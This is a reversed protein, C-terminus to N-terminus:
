ELTGEARMLAAIERYLELAAKPNQNIVDDYRKDVIEGKPYKDTFWKEFFDYNLLAGNTTSLYQKTVFIEDQGFLECINELLYSFMKDFKEKGHYYTEQLVSRVVSILLTPYTLTEHETTFELPKMIRNEELKAVVRGLHDFSFSRGLFMCEDPFPKDIVANKASDTYVVGYKALEVQMIQQNLLEIGNEIDCIISALLDDGYTALRLLIKRVKVYIEFTFRTGMLNRMRDLLAIGTWIAVGTCNIQTTLPNGSSNVSTFSYVNGFYDVVCSILMTLLNQVMELEESTYNKSLRCLEGYYHKIADTIEKYLAFEFGAFDGDFSAAGGAKLFKNIQEWQISSSDVGVMTSFFFPNLAMTRCLTLLYERTLLTAEMPLVLIFRIRGDKLKEPKMPEDKIVAKILVKHTGNQAVVRLDELAKDMDDHLIDKHGERRIIYGMKGKLGNPSPKENHPYGASTQRNIAELGKLKAHQGVMALADNVNHIGEKHWGDWDIQDAVNFGNLAVDKTVRHLHTLVNDDKNVNIDQEVEHLMAKVVFMAKEALESNYEPQSWAKSMAVAVGTSVQASSLDMIVKGSGFKGGFPTPKNKLIHGLGSIKVKSKFRASSLRLRQGVLKGSGTYVFKKGNIAFVEKGIWDKVPDKMHPTPMMPPGNFIEFDTEVPKSLHLTAIDSVLAMKSPAFTHTQLPFVGLQDFDQKCWPVILKETTRAVMAGMHMGVIMQATDDDKLAVYLKGCDGVYSEIPMDIITVTNVDDKGRLYMHPKTIYGKPGYKTPHKFASTSQALASHRIMVCPLGLPLHTDESIEAIDPMWVTLDRYDRARTIYTALMDKSGFNYQTNSLVEARTMTVDLMPGLNINEVCSYITLTWDSWQKQGSCAGDPFCHHNYVLWKGKVFTGNTQIQSYNGNDNPTAACFILKVNHVLAKHWVTEGQVAQSQKTMYRTLGLSPYEYRAAKIDNFSAVPTKASSMFNGQMQYKIEEKSFYKYCGGIITAVGIAASITTFCAILQKLGNCADKMKNMAMENTNGLNSVLDRGDVLLQQAQPIHHQVVELIAETDSYITDLRRVRNDVYKYLKNAVYMGAIAVGGALAVKPIEGRLGEYNFGQKVVDAPAIERALSAVELYPKMAKKREDESSVSSVDDADDPEEEMYIPDIEFDDLESWKFGRNKLLKDVLAHQAAHHKKYCTKMYAWFQIADDFRAIKRWQTQIQCEPLNYDGVDVATNHLIPEYVHYIWYDDPEFLEPNAHLRAAYAAQAKKGDLFNGSTAYEPKVEIFVKNNFRRDMIAGFNHIEEPQLSPVNTTVLVGTPAMPCNEKQELAAKNALMPVNNVLDCFMKRMPDGGQKETLATRLSCMDDFVMLLCDPQFGNNFESGNDQVTHILREFLEPPRGELSLIMAGFYSVLSSKGTSSGGAFCTAFPVRRMGSACDLKFRTEIQQYKIRWEDVMKSSMYRKAIKFGTSAGLHKEAYARVTHYEKVWQARGASDRAAWTSDEHALKRLLEYMDEMAAVEEIYQSFSGTASGNFWGYIITTISTAIRFFGAYISDESTFRRLAYNVLSNAGEMTFTSFKGSTYATMALGGIAMAKILDYIINKSSGMNMVRNFDGMMSFVNSLGDYIGAQKVFAVKNGDKDTAESWHWFDNQKMYAALGDAFVKEDLSRFGREEASRERAKIFSVSLTGVVAALASYAAGMSADKVKILDAYRILIDNAIFPVTEANSAALHLVKSTWFHFDSKLYTVLVEQMADVAPHRIPDNMYLTEGEFEFSERDDDVRSPDYERLPPPPYRDEIAQYVFPEESITHLAEYRFAEEVITQASFYKIAKIANRADEINTNNDFRLADFELGTLGYNCVHDFYKQKQEKKNQKKDENNRKLSYHDEVVKESIINTDDGYHTPVLSINRKPASDYRIFDTPDCVKMVQSTAEKKEGINVKKKKNLFKREKDSLPLKIDSMLFMQHQDRKALIEASEVPKKFSLTTTKTM